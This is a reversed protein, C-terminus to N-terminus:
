KKLAPKIIKKPLVPVFDKEDVTRSGNSKSKEIQKNALTEVLQM